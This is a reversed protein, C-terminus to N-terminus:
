ATKTAAAARTSVLWPLARDDYMAGASANFGGTHTTQDIDDGAAAQIGKPYRSSKLKHAM